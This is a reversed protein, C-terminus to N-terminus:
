PINRMVMVRRMYTLVRVGLLRLLVLFILACIGFSVLLAALITWGTSTFFFFLLRACCYIVVACALPVLGANFLHPRTHTTRHICIFGSIVRLLDGIILGALYGYIHLSPLASWTWVLILQIIEAGTAFLLVQRQMGLGNLISVSLMLYYTVVVEISILMVMPIPATQGFLLTCILPVFPLLMATAPMGLLGAAEIGKNVKRQLDSKDNRTISVCISPMLLTCLASILASPLLLIPMVMGSILGLASVAEAHTYGALLLRQPFIVTSISAFVNALIATGASPIAIMLFKRHLGQAPYLKKQPQRTIGRFYNFGLFAVSYLESLTMGTLILFATHGHDGNMFRGILAAAILIRLLQEGVESVATYKVYRIGNFLAKMINEMGTLLICLLIMGLAKATRPDGLLQVAITERLLLIPAALLGLLILFCSLAFRIIRRIGAYDGSQHLGASVNTVAITLGSVCVSMVIGYVQMSLTYIGLGEPGALRGLLIRYIFNLLLLLMNSTALLGAQYIFARKNLLVCGRKRTRSLAVNM